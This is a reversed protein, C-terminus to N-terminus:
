VAYLDLDWCPLGGHRRLYCTYGADISRLLLPIEFLDATRHYLAIKLAPHHERILSASGRLAAQEMGEVDYKVCDFPRGLTDPRMCPVTETGGSRSGRGRGSSFPMEGDHDAACAQYAAADLGEARLEACVAELRRFSHREPEFAAIRALKPMLRRALRVTDGTYAGLDLFSTIREPQLLRWGDEEPTSMEPALLEEMRGSLRYAIVKDFVSRSLPDALMGRVAELATRNKEYYAETFLHGTIEGEFAVPVEPILLECRAAIRRVYGIVEPRHTGFSMLAIFGSGHRAEADSFSLVKRGHFLQGRVFGDSAFIGQWPIGFASLAAAMKGAGDGMGYLWIPRGADAQRRLYDWVDSM